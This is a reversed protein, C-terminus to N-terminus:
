RDIPALIQPKLRDMRLASLEEILREGADARYFGKVEFRALALAKIHERGFDRFAADLKLRETGNDRGDRPWQLHQSDGASKRKGHIDADGCVIGRQGSRQESIQQEALADNLREQVHGLRDRLPVIRPDRDLLDAFQDVPRLFVTAVPAPSPQWHM